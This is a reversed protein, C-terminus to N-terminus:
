IWWVVKYVLWRWAFAFLWFGGVLLLITFLCGATDQITVKYKDIDMLLDTILQPNINLIKEVKIAVLKSFSLEKKSITINDDTYELKNWNSDNNLLNLLDTNTFLRNEGVILNTFIILCILLNNPNM